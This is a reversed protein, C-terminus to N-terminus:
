KYQRNKIYMGLINSVNHDFGLKSYFCKKTYSTYLTVLPIDCDSLKNLMSNLILSGIGKKQYEPLVAVDWITANFVGDGTARAVAILKNKYKASTVWFSNQLSKEIDNVDRYQWGVSIYVNQVEQASIDKAHSIEILNIDFEDKKFFNKV